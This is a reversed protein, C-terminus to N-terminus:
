HNSNKILQYYFRYCDKFSDISLRENIGHIRELDATTATQPSFRYVDDSITAYHRSDTTGNVLSAAVFVDPYIQKITKSITKFGETETSSVPSPNSSFKGTSITIRDDDVVEKVHSIIDEITEGPLIRFNLTASGSKPLSNEQIGSKFITPATTTQVISNSAHSSQYINLIIGEFLWTNAFFLKKIFPM